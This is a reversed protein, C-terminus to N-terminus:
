HLQRQVTDTLDTLSFPKALFVSNPIGISGDEIQEEAYGSVFVVKVDPRHELAARVWSPGDMGPMVIDTVFLDVDLAEDELTELAEEASGAEIVTHGRLRLARSAFARVPAEDEVLLVVAQAEADAETAPDDAARATGALDPAADAGADTPGEPNEVAIPAPAEARADHAPCYITFTTGMDVVSDVFIYGGTQKIIGYAM